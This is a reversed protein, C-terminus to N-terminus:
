SFRLNISDSIMVVFMVLTILITIIIVWIPLKGSLYQFGTTAMFAGGFLLVLSAQSRLDFQQVDTIRFGSLLALTYFCVSIAVCIFGNKAEIAKVRLGIWLLFPVIVLSIACAPMNVFM